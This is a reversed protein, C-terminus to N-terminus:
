SLDPVSNASTQFDCETGGVAEGGVGLLDM